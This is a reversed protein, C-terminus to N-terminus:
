VRRGRGSEGVAEAEIDRALAVVDGDVRGRVDPEDLGGLQRAQPGARQFHLALGHGDVNGFVPEQQCDEGPRGLDVEILDM